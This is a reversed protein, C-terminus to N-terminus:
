ASLKGYNLGPEAQGIWQGLLNHSDGAILRSGPLSLCWSHLVVLAALKM